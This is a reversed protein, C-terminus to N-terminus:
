SGTVEGSFWRLSTQSTRYFREFVSCLNCKAEDTLWLRKERGMATELVPVLITGTNDM